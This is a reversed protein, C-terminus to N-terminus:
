SLCVKELSAQCVKDVSKRCSGAIKPRSLTQRCSKDANQGLKRRIKQLCLKDAPNTQMKALNQRIKQLCLKDASNTQWSKKHLCLKDASGSCVFNTQMDVLEDAVDVLHCVKDVTSLSQRCYSLSQRCFNTQEFRARAQLTPPVQPRRLPRSASKHTQKPLYKPQMALNTQM